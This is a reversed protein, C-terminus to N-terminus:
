YVIGHVCTCMETVFYLMPPYPVPANHIQAVPRHVQITIVHMTIFLFDVPLLNFGMKIYLSEKWACANM